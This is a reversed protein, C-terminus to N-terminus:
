NENWKKRLVVGGPELNGRRINRALRQLERSGADAIQWVNDVTLEM